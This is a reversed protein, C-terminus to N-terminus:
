KRKRGKDCIDSDCYIKKGRLKWGGEVADAIAEAESTVRYNVELTSLCLEDDCFVVYRTEVSM